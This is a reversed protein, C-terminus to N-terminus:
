IDATPELRVPRVLNNIWRKSKVRNIGIIFKVLEEANVILYVWHIPLHLVLGSILSLPVGIMWLSILDLGMGFRTDGGSRLIGVIILLNSVRLWLVGASVILLNGTYRLSTESINYIQTIRDINLFITLGILLAGIVGLTLSRRGYDFATDEKGAGIQNGIMIGTADSIALFSV